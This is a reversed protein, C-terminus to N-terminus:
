PPWRDVPAVAGAAARAGDVVLGARAARVGRDARGRRARSGGGLGQLLGRRPPKAPTAGRATGAVRRLLVLAAVLPALVWSFRRLLRRYFLRSTVFASVQTPDALLQIGDLWGGVQRRLNGLAQHAYHGLPTEGPNRPDEFADFPDFRHGPEVRVRRDGDGTHMTVEAAIAVEAGLRKGVTAVAAPNWALCGDRDGPLLVVRRDDRAGFALIADSLRANASLARAPDVLADGVLDFTNGALILVCPGHVAALTARSSRLSPRPRTM